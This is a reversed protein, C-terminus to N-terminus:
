RNGGRANSAEWLDPPLPEATGVIDVMRDLDSGRGRPLGLEDEAKAIVEGVAVAVEDPMMSGRGAVAAAGAIATANVQVEPQGGPLSRLLLGAAELRDAFAVGAVRGNDDLDVKTIGRRAEVPVKDLRRLKLGGDKTPEYISLPDFDVIAMLQAEVYERAIRARDASAALLETIRAKVPPKNKLKRANDKAYEGTRYGATAYASAVPAGSVIEQAFIEWRENELQPMAISILM